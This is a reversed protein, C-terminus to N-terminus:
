KKIERISVKVVSWGSSKLKFSDPLWARVRKHDHDCWFVELRGEPSKACFAITEKMRKSNRIM